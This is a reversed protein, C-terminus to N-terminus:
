QGPYGLVSVNAQERDIVSTALDDCMEQYKIGSHGKVHIATLNLRDAEKAIRMWLDMNKPKTGSSTKGTVLWRRYWKQTIGNVCYASDSKLIVTDGNDLLELGKIIALMEMRISTPVHVPDDTVKGAGYNFWETEDENVEVYGWGGLATEKGNGRCAGDTYIFRTM